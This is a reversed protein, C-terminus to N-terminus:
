SATLNKQKKTFKWYNWYTNTKRILGLKQATFYGLRLIAPTFPILIISKLLLKQVPSFIDNFQSLTKRAMDTHELFLQMLISKFLNSSAFQLFSNLIIQNETENGGAIKRAEKITREYLMRLYYGRKANVKRIMLTQDANGFEIAAMPQHIYGVNPYRLAIRWWLGWDQHRILSEDFLGTERLIEKKILVLNTHAFCFGKRAADFYNQIIYKESVDLKNNLECIDKAPSKKIKIDGISSNKLLYNGICWKLAPNRKLLQVQFNSKEPFWTDDADLFAIWNGTSKLIGINRAAAAGSNKKIAFYRIQNNYSLLKKETADESGDNVVIIEHMPYTQSLVSDIAKQITKEANFAPIIVSINVRMTDRKSSLPSATKLNILM